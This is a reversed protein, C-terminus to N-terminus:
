YFFLCGYGTFVTTEEGSKPESVCVDRKRFMGVPSSLRSYECALVVPTLKMVIRDFKFFFIGQINEFHLKQLTNFSWSFFLPYEKKEM